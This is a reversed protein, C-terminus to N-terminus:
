CTFYRLVYTGLVHLRSVRRSSANWRPKDSPLRTMGAGASIERGLRCQGKAECTSANAEFQLMHNNMYFSAFAKVEVKQKM